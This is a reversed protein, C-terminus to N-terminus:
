HKHCSCNCECEALPKGCCGCEEEREVCCQCGCCEHCCDKVDKISEEYEKNEKREYLLTAIRMGVPIVLLLGFAMVITGDLM